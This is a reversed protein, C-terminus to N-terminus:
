TTRAKTRSRWIAPMFAAMASFNASNSRRTVPCSSAIRESTCVIRCSMAGDAFGRRDMPKRTSSPLGTYPFRRGDPLDLAHSCDACVLAAAAM